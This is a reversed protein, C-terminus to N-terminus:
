AQASEMASMFRARTRSLSRVLDSRLVDHCALRGSPLRVECRLWVEGLEELEDIERTLDTIAAGLTAHFRELELLALTPSAL